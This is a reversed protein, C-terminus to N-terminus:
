RHSLRLLLTARQVQLTKIPRFSCTCTCSYTHAFTAIQCVVHLYTILSPIINWLNFPSESLPLSLPLSLSLSPSLPLSPSRSLSHPLPLFPPLSPPLSLSLPLSHPLSPSLSLPLSVGTRLSPSPPLSESVGIPRKCATCLYNQSDLGKEPVLRTLLSTLTQSAELVSSASGETVVQYLSVLLLPVSLLPCTIHHNFVCVCRLTSHCQTHIITVGEEVTEMAVMPPCLERHRTRM